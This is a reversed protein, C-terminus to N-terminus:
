SGTKWSKWERALAVAPFTAGALQGATRSSRFAVVEVGVAQELEACSLNPVPVKHGPAPPVVANGAQCRERSGIVVVSRVGTLASLASRVAEDLNYRGYAAAADEVMMDYADVILHLQATGSDLKGATIQLFLEEALAALMSRLEPEKNSRLTARLWQGAPGKGMQAVSTEIKRSLRKVPGASTAEASEEIGAQALNSLEVAAEALDWIGATLFTKALRKATGVTKAARSKEFDVPGQDLMRSGFAALCDFGFLRVEIPIHFASVYPSRVFQNRLRVLFQFVNDHGLRSGDIHLRVVSVAGAARVSKGYMEECLRTVGAGPPGVVFLLQLNTGASGNVAQKFLALEPQRGILPPVPNDPGFM